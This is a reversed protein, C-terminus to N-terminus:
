EDKKGERRMRLLEELVDILESANVAVKAGDGFIDRRNEALCRIQHLRELSVREDTAIKM